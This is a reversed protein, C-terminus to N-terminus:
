TAIYANNRIVKRLNGKQWQKNNYVETCVYLMIFDILQNNAIIACQSQIQLQKIAYDIYNCLGILSTGNNRIDGPCM